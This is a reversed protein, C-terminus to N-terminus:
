IDINKYEKFIELIQDTQDQIAQDMGCGCYYGNHGYYEWGCNEEHLFNEEQLLNHIKDRIPTLIDEKYEEPKCHICTTNPKPNEKCKKCGTHCHCYDGVEKAIKYGDEHNYQKKLNGFLEDYLQKRDMLVLYTFRVGIRAM